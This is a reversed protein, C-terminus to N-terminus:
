KSIEIQRLTINIRSGTIKRKSLSTKRDSVCHKHTDQCGPLMWLASGDPLEREWAVKESVKELFKFLKAGDEECFTLSLIVKSTLSREDDSHPGLYDVKDTDPPPRYWNVFCANFIQDRGSQSSARMGAFVDKLQPFMEIQAEQFELSNVTRFILDIYSGTVPKVPQVQRGSYKMIANEYSWLCTLRRETQTQGYVVIQEQKLHPRCEELLRDFSTRDQWTRPWLSEVYIWYRHEETATQM